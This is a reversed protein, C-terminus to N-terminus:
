PKIPEVILVGDNESVAVNHSKAVNAIAAYQPPVHAKLEETGFVKTTVKHHEGAVHCGHLPCEPNQQEMITLPDTSLAAHPTTASQELLESEVWQIAAYLILDRWAPHVGAGDLVKIFQEKHSM